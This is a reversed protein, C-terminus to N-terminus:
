YGRPMLRIVKGEDQEPDVSVTHDNLIPGRQSAMYLLEKARTKYINYKTSKSKGDFQSNM